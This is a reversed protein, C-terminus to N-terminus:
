ALVLAFASRMAYAAPGATDLGRAYLSTSVNPPPKETAMQSLLPPSATPPAFVFSSADKWAVRQFFPSILSRLAVAEADRVGDVGTSLDDPLRERAIKGEDTTSDNPLMARDDIQVGCNWRIWSQLEYFRVIDVIM